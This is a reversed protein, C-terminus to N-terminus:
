RTLSEPKGKTKAVGLMYGATYFFFLFFSLLIKLSHENRLGLLRSPGKAEAGCSLFDVELIM